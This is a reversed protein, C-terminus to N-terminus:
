NNNTLSNTRFEFEESNMKVHQKRENNWKRGSMFSDVNRQSDGNGIESENVVNGQCNKHDGYWLYWKRKDSLPIKVNIMQRKKCWDLCFAIIGVSAIGIGMVFCICILVVGYIEVEENNIITINYNIIKQCFTNNDSLLYNNACVESNQMFTLTYEGEKPFICIVNHETRYVYTLSYMENTNLIHLIVKMYNSSNSFVKMIQIQQNLDIKYPSINYISSISPITNHLGERTISIFRSHQNIYVLFFNNISTYLMSYVNNSKNNNVATVIKNICPNTENNRLILEIYIETSILNWSTNINNNNQEILLILYIYSFYPHIYLDISNINSHKITKIYQFINSTDNNIHNNYTYIAIGYSKYLIYITHELLIFSQIPNSTTTNMAISSLVGNHLM